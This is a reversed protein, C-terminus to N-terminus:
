RPLRRVSTVPAKALIANFFTKATLANGAATPHLGDTDILNFFNPSDAAVYAANLDVLTAGLSSQTAVMAAIQNNTAAISPNSSLTGRCSSTCNGNPLLTGVFIFTVGAAHANQIDTRLDTVIQTMSAQSFGGQALDNIGELLLVTDPHDVALVCQLRPIGQDTREQPWGRNDVTFTQTFDATLLNLLQTPYANPLDIFQPRAAGGLPRIGGLGTAATSPCTSPGIFSPSGSLGNEGATISDGFAVINAVGITHSKVAVSTQCVASRNIADTATCSVTTTGIPFTSGSAPTCAVSVPPTGGTPTPAAFTVPLSTSGVPVTATTSAPCTVSLQQM